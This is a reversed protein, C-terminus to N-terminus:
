ANPSGPDATVVVTGTQPEIWLVFHAVSPQWEPGLTANQIWQCFFNRRVYRPAHFSNWLGQRPHRAPVM